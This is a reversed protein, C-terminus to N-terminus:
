RLNAPIKPMKRYEKTMLIKLKEAIQRFDDHSMQTLDVGALKNYDLGALKFADTAQPKLLPDSNLQEFTAQLARPDEVIGVYGLWYTLLDPDHLAESFVKEMGERARLDPNKTNSMWNLIQQYVVKTKAEAVRKLLVEQASLGKDLEAGPAFLCAIDEGRPVHFDAALVGTKIKGNLIEQGQDSNMSNAFNELTNTSRDETVIALDISKGYLEQYMPGFRRSIIDAMLQAESPWNEIREPSLKEKAWAPMTKGGSLLLKDTYGSVLAYGASLANERGWRNLGFRGLQQWQALKADIEAQDKIGELESLYAEGEVVRFDPETNHLPDTKFDAWAKQMSSDLEEGRLLPKVPGQGLVILLDVSKQAEVTVLKKPKTESPAQVKELLSIVTGEPTISNAEAPTQAPEPQGTSVVVEPVQSVESM